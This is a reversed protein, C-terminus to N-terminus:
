HFTECNNCKFMAVYWAYSPVKLKVQSKFQCQAIKNDLTNFLGVVWEEEYFCMQEKIWIAKPSVPLVKKFIDVGLVETFAIHQSRLRVLGSSTMSEIICDKDNCIVQDGVKLDWSCLFLQLKKYPKPNSAFGLPGCIDTRGNETNIIQDGPNIEGDVPLNKIFLKKM